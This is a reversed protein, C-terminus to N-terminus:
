WGDGQVLCDGGFKSRRGALMYLLSRLYGAQLFITLEWGEMNGALCRLTSAVGDLLETPRVLSVLFAPELTAVLEVVPPDVLEIGPLASTCGKRGIFDLLFFVLLPLLGDLKYLLLKFLDSLVHDMKCVLQLPNVEFFIEM